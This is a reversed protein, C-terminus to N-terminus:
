QFAPARPLALEICAGDPCDLFELDGGHRRAIRRSIALGTGVGPYATEPNLRRFMEFTKARFEPEIGIGNDTIRLRWWGKDQDAAVVIRPPVGPRRFKLANDLLHHFVLGLHETDAFVEGLQGLSVGAAKGDGIDLGTMVLRMVLSADQRVPELAKQQVRSFLLLQDMMLQCKDTAGRIHEVHSQQPGTLAEGLTGLLLRSFESVHRFSAALDHSVLYSFSQLELEAPSVVAEPRLLAPSHQM